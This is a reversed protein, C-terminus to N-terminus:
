QYGLFDPLPDKFDEAVQVVGADCGFARVVSGPPEGPTLRAVVHGRSVIEVSVGRRAASLLSPFSRHAEALSVRRPASM